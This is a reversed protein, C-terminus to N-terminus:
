IQVVSELQHSEAEAAWALIRDGAWSTNGLDYPGAMSHEVTVFSVAVIGTTGRKSHTAALGADKLWCGAGADACSLPSGLTGFLKDRVRLVFMLKVGHPGTLLVSCRGPPAGHSGAPYVRLAFRGTGAIEFPATVSSGPARFVMSSWLLDPAVIFSSPAALRLPTWRSSGRPPAVPEVGGSMSFTPVYRLESFELDLAFDNCGDRTVGTACAVLESPVKFRVGGDSSLSWDDDGRAALPTAHPQQYTHGDCRVEIRGYHGAPGRVRVLAQGGVSTDWVLFQFSVSGGKELAVAPLDLWSANFASSSNIKIRYSWHESYVGRSNPVSAQLHWAKPAASVVATCEGSHGVCFEFFSCTRAGDCDCDHQCVHNDAESRAYCPDNCLSDFRGSLMGAVMYLWQAPAGPDIVAFALVMLPACKSALIKAKARIKALRRPKGPKEAPIKLQTLDNFCITHGCSLVYPTSTSTLCVPCEGETFCRRAPATCEARCVPCTPGTIM